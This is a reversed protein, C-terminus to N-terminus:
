LYFTLIQRLLSRFKKQKGLIPEIRVRMQPHLKLFDNMVCKIDTQAHAGPALFLPLIRIRTYGARAQAKLASLFTPTALELFGLNVSKDATIQHILSKMFRNAAAVRSGHAVVTTATKDKTSKKM